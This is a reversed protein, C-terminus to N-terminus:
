KPEDSLQQQIAALRAKLSNNEKKLDIVYLTLEEIKQLLKSSIDGVSVGKEKVEAETPIGPLHKNRSIYAEIEELPPLRYNAEFVFDSWGTNTVTLEKCGITGNVALKYAPSATGIGVNGNTDIRMRELTGNNHGFTIVNESATAFQLTNNASDWVYGGYENPGAGEGVLVGGGSSVVSWIHGDQVQLKALPNSTGIGVRGDNYYINSGSLEWYPPTVSQPSIDPASYPSFLSSIYDRASTGSASSSLSSIPLDRYITTIPNNDGKYVLTLYTAISADSALLLKVLTEDSVMTREGIPAGNVKLESWIERVRAPNDPDDGLNLKNTFKVSLRAIPGLALGDSKSFEFDVTYKGRPFTQSAIPTLSTQSDYLAFTVEDPLDEAATIPWELFVDKQLSIGESDQSFSPSSSLVFIALLLVILFPTRRLYNICM